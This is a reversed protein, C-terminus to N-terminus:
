VSERSLIAQTDGLFRDATQLVKVCAAHKMTVDLRRIQQPSVITDANDVEVNGKPDVVRIAALTSSPSVKRRIQVQISWKGRIVFCFTVHIGKSNRYELAESAGFIGPVAGRRRNAHCRSSQFLKYGVDAWLEACEDLLCKSRSAAIPEM